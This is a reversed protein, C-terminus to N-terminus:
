APKPPLDQGKKALYGVSLQEFQAPFHAQYGKM